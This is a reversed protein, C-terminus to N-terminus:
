MAVLYQDHQYSASPLLGTTGSICENVKKTLRTYNNSLQCRFSREQRSAVPKRSTPYVPVQWERSHIEVLQETVIAVFSLVHFYISSNELNNLVALTSVIADWLAIQM